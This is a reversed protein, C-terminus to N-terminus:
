GQVQLASLPCPCRSNNREPEAHHRCFAWGRWKKATEGVRSWASERREPATSLYSISANLSLYKPNKMTNNSHISSSYRFCQNTKMRFLRTPKLTHGRRPWSLWFPARRRNSADGNTMGM